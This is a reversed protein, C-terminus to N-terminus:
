KVSLEGSKIIQVKVIDEVVKAEIKFEDGPKLEFEYTAKELHYHQPLNKNDVTLSYKGPRLDSFVFEGNDDTLTRETIDAGNLEILVDKVVLSKSIDDENPIFVKGSVISATVVDFDLNVIGGAMDIQMPTKPITIKGDLNDGQISLLHKGLTLGEISYRGQDDTLSAKDETRVLVGKMGANNNEMDRVYGMISAIDRRRETPIGFPISYEVMVATNSDSDGGRSKISYRARIELQDGNPLTHRFVLPINWRRYTHRQVDCTFGSSFFTSNNIDFNLNLGTRISSPRNIDMSDGRLYNAYGSVFLDDSVRWSLMGLQSLHLITANRLRDENDGLEWRGGLTVNGINLSAALRMFREMNDFRPTESKDRNLKDIYDLSITATSPLNYSAGFTLYREDFKSWETSGGSLNRQQRRWSGNIDFNEGLPVSATFEDYRQDRYYGPFDPDADIHKFRLSLDDEQIRGEVRIAEGKKAEGSYGGRAYEFDMNSEDKKGFQGRIGWISRDRLISTESEDVNADLLNLSIKNNEDIPMVLEAGYADEHTSGRPTRAYFTDFGVGDLDANIEVGRGNRSSDVAPSLDFYGDGLFIGFDKTKYALHAAEDKTFFVLNREPSPGCYLIDVGKTEEEDLSGKIKMEVQGGARMKDRDEANIRFSLEGPLRKFEDVKGSSKPYVTFSSTLSKEFKLDSYGDCIAKVYLSYTVNEVKRIDDAFGVEVSIVATEDMDLRMPSPQNEARGPDPIRSDFTIGLPINGTNQVSIDFKVKEGAILQTKLLGLQQIEIQPVPLVSVELESSDLVDSTDGSALLIRASYTGASTTPPIRFSVVRLAVQEEDLTIEGDGAILNWGDPLEVAVRYKAKVSDPNTLRYSTSIVDKPSAKIAGAGMFQILKGDSGTAPAAFLSLALATIVSFCPIKNLRFRM